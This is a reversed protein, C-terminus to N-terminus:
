SLVEAVILSLTEDTLTRNAVRRAGAMASHRQVGFARAIEGWSAGRQRMVHYAVQRARTVERPQLPQGKADRPPALIASAEVGLAAALRAAITVHSM